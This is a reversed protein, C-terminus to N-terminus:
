YCKKRRGKGRCRTGSVCYGSARFCSKGRKIKCRLDKKDCISSRGCMEFPNQHCKEGLALPKTCKKDDKNGTCVLGLECYKPDDTCDADLQLRCRNRQCLLGRSCVWFPDTNCRGGPGMLKMCRKQEGSGVCSLGNACQDRNQTCTGRNSIKCVSNECVLGGECTSGGAVECREGVTSIAQCQEKGSRGVCSLGSACADPSSSCSESEAIKCTNRDCTLGDDCVKSPDNGCVGGVDVVMGCTKRNNRGLCMLGSACSDEYGTCDGGQPIKCIENECVLNSACFWYPDILCEKGPGMPVYCRKRRGTGVCSLGEACHDRDNTCIGKTDIKCVENQCILGSACKSRSNPHCSSGARLDSGSSEISQICLWLAICLLLMNSQFYM